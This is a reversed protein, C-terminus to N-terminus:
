LIQFNDNIRSSLSDAINPLINKFFDCLSSKFDKSSKFFRNNRAYENMVKWLREIPNLNPSYAPLYHLKIKLKRAAKKVADSRHYGAKDLILHIKKSSQYKERMLRLFDVVSEANITEYSYIQTSSLNELEIAGMLNLRTRSATTSVAKTKGTRIWGYSLKTAQTPHVSDMFLITEDPNLRKKLRKYKKIFNLQQQKDSKYPHGKPKKYSFENRHLWKNLGPVSYVVGYKLKVHEIIEHVHHYTHEELHSILELTQAENLASQSGGNAPTLKKENYDNLHRNVSTEHLRLAQSIMAVTWGESYLLIAKIRDREKGNKSAKHRQELQCKEKSSLSIKSMSSNQDEELFFALMKM